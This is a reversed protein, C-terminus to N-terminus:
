KRKNVRTLVTQKIGKYECHDKVTAMFQYDQNEEYYCTTIWKFENGNVDKMLYLYKTSSNYYDYSTKELEIRRCIHLDLPIRKGIEGIYESTPEEIKRINEIYLPSVEDKSKWVIELSDELVQAEELRQCEYNEFKASSYWGVAPNFKCGIGKLEDKISFTDGVVRYIVYVGEEIGFGFKKLNEGRNKKLREIREKEAKQHRAEAQAAM